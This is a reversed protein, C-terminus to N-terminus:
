QEFHSRKRYKFRLCIGCLWICSMKDLSASANRLFKICVWVCLAFHKGRKMCRLRQLFFFMPTQYYYPSTSRPVFFIGEAIPACILFGSSYVSIGYFPKKDKKVHMERIMNTSM